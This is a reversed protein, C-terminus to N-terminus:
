SLIEQLTKRIALYMSKTRYMEMQERSKDGAVFLEHPYVIEGTNRVFGLKKNIRLAKKNELGVHIYVKNVLQYIYDSLLLIGELFAESNAYSHDGLLLRGM